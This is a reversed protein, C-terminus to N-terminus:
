RWTVSYLFRESDRDAQEFSDSFCLFLIQDQNERRISEPINFIVKFGDDESQKSKMPLMKGDIMARYLDARAQEGNQDRRGSVDLEVFRPKDLVLTVVDDAIGTEIDWGAGNLPIGTESPHKTIGYSGAFSELSVAPAASKQTGVTQSPVPAESSAIGYILWVALAYVGVSRWVVPLLVWVLLVFGAMAPLFDMLYRSMISPYHLYFAFLGTFSVSFWFLNALALKQDAAFEARSGRIRMWFSAGIALAGAIFYAPGFATFNLRRWRDQNAQGHFANHSFVDQIGLQPSFFLATFLERAAATGSTENYPNGFRTIYVMEESSVTLRHGFEFPSGFRFQNTVAVGILGAAFVCVPAMASVRKIRLYQVVVCITIGMLGYIAVTPRVLPTLGALVGCIWFDARSNFATVRITAVLVALSVLVGYLITEDFVDRAARALTWLSPNFLLIWVLGIGFITKHERALRCGTKGAYFAFLGFAVILAVRSPFQGEGALSWIAQFPLLWLGIGLGWVQQVQGSHWALGPYLQHVTNGLSFTGRLM